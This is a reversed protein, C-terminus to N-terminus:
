HFRQVKDWVLQALDCNVEHDGSRYLKQFAEYWDDINIQTIQIGEEELQRLIHEQQDQALTCGYGGSYIIAEQVAAQEQESLGALTSPNAFIDILKMRGGSLLLTKDSLDTRSVTLDVERVLVDSDGLLGWIDRLSEGRDMQEQIVALPTKDTIYEELAAIDNTLWHLSGGYTLRKLEMSDNEPLSYNLAALVDEHNGGTIVCDEDRFFYPYDLMAFMAGDGLVEQYVPIEEKRKEESIVFEVPYEVKGLKVADSVVRSNDCVLLDASGDQICQWINDTEVIEVSLSNEAFDEARRSLERAVERVLESSGKPIALTLEVPQDDPRIPNAPLSQCGCLLAMLVCLVARKM